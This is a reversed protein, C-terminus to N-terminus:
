LEMSAYNDEQMGQETFCVETALLNGVAETFGSDTYLRWSGECDENGNVTYAVAIHTYIDGDDEDFTEAIYIGTITVAEIECDWISDGALTVDVNCKFETCLVNEDVETSVFTLLNSVTKFQTQMATQM